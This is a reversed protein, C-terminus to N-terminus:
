RLGLGWTTLNCDYATSLPLQATEGTRQNRTLHRGAVFHQDWEGSSSQPWFKLITTEGARANTFIPTPPSRPRQPASTWSSSSSTFLVGRGKTFLFSAATLSHGM